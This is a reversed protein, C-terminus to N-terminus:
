RLQDRKNRMCRLVLNRIHLVIHNYFLSYYIAYRKAVCAQYKHQSVTMHYLPPLINPGLKDGSFGVLVTIVIMTVLNCLFHDQIERTM